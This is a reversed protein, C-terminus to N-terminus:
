KILRMKPSRFIRTIKLITYNLLMLIASNLFILIAYKYILLVTQYILKFASINVKPVLAFKLNM